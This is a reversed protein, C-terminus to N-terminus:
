FEAVKRWHLTHSSPADYSAGIETSLDSTLGDTIGEIEAQIFM